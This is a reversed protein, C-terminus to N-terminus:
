GIQSVDLRSAGKTPDGRTIDSVSADSESDSSMTVSSMAIESDEFAGSGGGGFDRRSLKTIGVALRVLRLFVPRSFVGRSVDGGGTVTLSFGRLRRRLSSNVGEPFSFKEAM